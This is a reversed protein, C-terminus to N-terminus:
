PQSDEETSPGPPPAPPQPRRAPRRVAPSPASGGRAPAGAAGALLGGDPRRHRCGLDPDGAATACHWFLQMLAGGPDYATPTTSAAPRPVRTPDSPLLAYRGSAPRLM